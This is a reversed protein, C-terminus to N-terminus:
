GDPGYDYVRLDRLGALFGGTGEIADRVLRWHACGLPGGHDPSRKRLARILDDHDM